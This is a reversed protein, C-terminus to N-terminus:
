IIAGLKKYMIYRTEKRGSKWKDIDNYIFHLKKFKIKNKLKVINYKNQSKLFHSVSTAENGLRAIKM